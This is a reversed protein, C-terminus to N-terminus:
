TLSNLCFAQELVGGMEQYSSSAWKQTLSTHKWWGEVRGKLLPCKQNWLLFNLKLKLCWNFSTCKLSAYLKTLWDATQIIIPHSTKLQSFPTTLLVFVSWLLKAQLRGQCSKGPCKNQSPHELNPWRLKTYHSNKFLAM